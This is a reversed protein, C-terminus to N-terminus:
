TKTGSPTVTLVDIKDSQAVSRSFVLNYAKTAAYVPLMEFGKADAVVSSM